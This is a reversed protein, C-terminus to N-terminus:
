IEYTISSIQQTDDEPDNFDEMVVKAIEKMDSNTLPKKIGDPITIYDRGRWSVPYYGGGRIKDEAKFGKLHPAADKRPKTTLGRVDTPDFVPVYLYNGENRSSNPISSHPGIVYVDYSYLRGSVKEGSVTFKLNGKLVKLVSNINKDSLLSYNEIYDGEKLTLDIM